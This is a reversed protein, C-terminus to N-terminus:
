RILWRWDHELMYNALVSDGGGQTIIFASSIMTYHAAVLALIMLFFVQVMERPQILSRQAPPNPM